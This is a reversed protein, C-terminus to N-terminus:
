ADGDIARITACPWPVAYEDDTGCTSCVPGNFSGYHGDDHYGMGGEVPQHIARIAELKAEADVKARFDEESYVLMPKPKVCEELQDLAWDIDDRNYEVVHLIERAKDRDLASM